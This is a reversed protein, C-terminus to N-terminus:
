KPHVCRVTQGRARACGAYPSIGTTSVILGISTTGDAVTSSWAYGLDYGKSLPFKGTDSNRQSSFPFFVKESGPRGAPADPGLFCGRSGNVVEWSSSSGANYLEQFDQRTPLRWPDGLYYNCPDGVGKTPNTFNVEILEVSAGSFYWEHNTGTSLGPWTSPVASMTSPCVAVETTYNFSAGGWYEAEKTCVGTGDGLAGGKWGILSGFQFYLGHDEPKGIRCGNSGSAVLNGEAWYVSEQSTTGVYLETTSIETSTLYFSVQRSGDELYAPVTVPVGVNVAGAYAPAGTKAGLTIALPTTKIDKGGKYAVVTWGVLNTSATLTFTAGTKTMSSLVGGATRRPLLVPAVYAQTLDVRVRGKDNIRGLYVTATRSPSATLNLATHLFIGTTSEVRSGTPTTNNAGLQLWDPAGMVEGVVYETGSFDSVVTSVSSVAARRRVVITQILNGLRVTITGSTFTNALTATITGGSAPVSTTAASMGTGTYSVEGSIGSANHYVTAIPVATLSSTTPAYVVYESNSLGLYYQGNSVFVDAAGPDISTVLYDLNQPKNAEAEAQTVFGPAKVSTINFTYVTNRAVDYKVPSTGYTLRLKYFGSVGNYSGKVVVALANAEAAAEDAAAVAREYVYVSTPLPNTSFNLDIRGTEAGSTGSTGCITASTNTHLVKVIGNLTFGAVGAVAVDIRACSRTMAVPQETTSGNITANTWEGWMPLPTSTIANLATKYGRLTAIPTIKKEFKAFEVEDAATVNAVVCVTGGTIRPATFAVKNDAIQVENIKDVLIGQDNFVFVWANQIAEDAALAKSQVRDSQEINLKLTLLNTPEGQAQIDSRRCSTTTGVSVAALSALVLLTRLANRKM